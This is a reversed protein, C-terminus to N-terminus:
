PILIECPVRIAKLRYVDPDMRNNVCDPVCTGYGNIAYTILLEDNDNIYEPHAIAAYFFPSHGKLRDDISYIMKKSTFPGTFNTAGAVYIETGSDCNISLQSSLLLLEGKIKSVQFTGSVGTQFAIVVAQKVDNIWSRGNWFQWTKNPHHFSFRAAYLECKIEPAVYKQGYVYVWEKKEDPVFGVGFSIGNFDQLMEYTICKMEPVKIKALFDNGAAAFGFAGTGENKFSSCYVYATDGLQVGAGPWCFFTDNKNNKLYSKLGADTGTLTGTNVNNWDGAPQLLATNRVQFLCPVTASAKDYDDIHSDGMLWLIKNNSLPVTFGGDGAICGATRKFFKTVTSDKHVTRGFSGDEKKLCSSGKEFFFVPLLLLFSFIKM